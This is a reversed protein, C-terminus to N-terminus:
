GGRGIMEAILLTKAEPVVECLKEVWFDVSNPSIVAFNIGYRIGVEDLVKREEETFEGFKGSGCIDIWGFATGSAMRVRITKCKSKLAKRIVKAALKTEIRM